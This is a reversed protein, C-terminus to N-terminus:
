YIRLGGYKARIRRDLLWWGLAFGLGLAVISCGVTWPWTPRSPMVSSEQFLPPAGPSAAADPAPTTVPPAEVPAPAAAPAVAAPPPNKAAAAAASAAKKAAALDTELQAKEKRIKTLEETRAELQQHLPLSPSLYSAKVWGETGSPLRIHAQEDQQEILEVSDGSKIQGVREGSGDAAANVSVVLQEIVYLTEARAAPAILACLGALALAPAIPTRWHTAVRV